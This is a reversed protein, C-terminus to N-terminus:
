TKCKDEKRKFVSKTMCTIWKWHLIIHILVLLGLILGSWTHIVKLSHSSMIKYAPKFFQRLGLWKLIGTVFSIILSIVLGADVVYNIKAKNM